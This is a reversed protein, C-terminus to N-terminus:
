PARPPAARPRAEEVLSRAEPGAGANEALLLAAGPRAELADKAAALLVADALEQAAARRRELAGRGEDSEISVAHLATSSRPSTLWPQAEVRPGLSLTQGWVVADVRLRGALARAASESRIAPGADEVGVVRLREGLRRGLEGEVLAALMRGERSSGEDPGYFSAIALSGAPAPAMSRGRAWWATGVMTALALAMLGAVTRRRTVPRRASPLTSTPTSISGWSSGERASGEIRQLLAKYSPPRREPEKATMDEVLAVVGPSLDCRRDGLAPLPDHLQHAMVEVPSGGEFPRAGALMEFLVVGLSYIDSRFDVSRGRAQEPSMYHPSGVVAGPYTLSQDQSTPAARALGFDAVRVLSEADLLVNSPKVDRHVVGRQWASALALAVQRTIRLAEAPPLGSTRRLRAALTEGDVFEMVFYALGATDGYAYVRVVHPHEVTAMVRAERLFRTRAGGEGAHAAAITKIAVRRGLTEDDALWVQGMGGEGLLRLMHYGHITPPMASATAM